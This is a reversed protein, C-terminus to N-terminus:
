HCAAEEEGKVQEVVEVTGDGDVVENKVSGGGGAEMGDVEPSANLDKKVGDAAGVPGNVAPEAAESTEVVSLEVAAVRTFVRLGITAVANWPPPARAAPKARKKDRKRRRDRQTPKPPPPPPPLQLPPQQSLPLPPPSPRADNPSQEEDPSETGSSEDSSSSSSSDDGAPPSDPRQSIFVQNKPVKPARRDQKGRAKFDTIIVNGDIIPATIEGLDEVSRDEKDGIGPKMHALNYKKGIQVLKRPNRALFFKLADRIPGRTFNPEAEIKLYVSYSGAPLTLETNVSRRTQFCPTSRAYVGKEGEKELRFALTFKYPGELGRFYRGDLQSLSIIVLDEKDLTFTFKTKHYRIQRSIQLSTWRQTCIWGPGILRIRDIIEFKRFLDDVVGILLIDYKQPSLLLKCSMWFVGDEGFKHDLEQMLAPTWEKSGDSWPGTWEHQALTNQVLVLRHSTSPDGAQVEQVRVIAYAHRSLLGQSTESGDPWGRTWCGFIIDRNCEKMEKWVQERDLIDGVRIETSVGGTMDEIAESMFGGEIAQYDGHAKAFAKEFLPLWTENENRSKSFYLADNGTLFTARYKEEGMDYLLNTEFTGRKNKRDDFNPQTPDSDNPKLLTGYEPNTLYVYDDM